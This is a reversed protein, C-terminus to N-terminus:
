SRQITFQSMKLTPEAPLIPLGDALLRPHGKGEADLEWCEVWQDWTIPRRSFFLEKADLTPGRSVLEGNRHLPTLLDYPERLDYAIMKGNLHDERIVLCHDTIDYGPVHPSLAATLQERILDVGALKYLGALASTLVQRPEADLQKLWGPEAISAILWGCHEEFALWLSQNPFTGHGLEVRIRNCSLVIQAVYIPPDPWSKSQKLLAIFEREIFLQLSRAVERLAQRYTRASRWNGDHYAALEAHRLYAFHTPVTGSHFGPKLLQPMKEGHRGIVVPKLRPARNARFLRWNEQIEWFFFAVASPLLWLTPIIVGYTLMSAIVPGTHPGLREIQAEPAFAERYLPILWMFKFALSSIPLKIPNLTPEMLTVFYLRILYGIPFWLVGAVARVVLTLRGEDSRFRLWEDVSYLLSEVAKTVQKFFLDVWRVVGQLFEFRVWGYVMAVSEVLAESAAYGFRSNLLVDVLIFTAVASTPGRTMPFCLWIAASVALPKIGYWFLLLFPWSSLISRLWPLRYLRVPIEYFVLRLCRYSWHGVQRFFERLGPVHMLLWLFVGLPLFTYWPLLLSHGATETARSLMAPHLMPVSPLVTAQRAVEEAAAPAQQFYHMVCIELTVVIAFAGGFPLVVHRTLFRGIDTGFFLSSGRELWRLYFEGRHYVGEMLTALRRDLWLLPDGRWYSVPDQLDPLKLRNRSVTDRLDAFTFFGYESIRDLLEEIMKQLAVQEPPNAAVLGVDHFADRLIPRFRERLREETLNSASQLLRGLRQRDDDSIRAMTLRQAATRLHQISRVLQLSTLPRKIPRRGASVVWEVLDLAFSKRQHEMCVEQLDYLLKAEVPWNGQDSKDLLSPLVQLWQQLEEGSFKLADQLNATLVGVDRVASDRTSRTLAAPAVRAAKTRLIAARVIDGEAVARDAHRQLRWYYDHSEDSSTDTQIVPDPAGPLRTRAFIADGDVDRALIQDIAAFDSIAPFYTARLNTRFYRLELYVAAFEIYVALDDAPELLDREEQLVARIEEFETRGIQEIRARVDAQTLNGEQHREDLALHVHVHFLLRWYRSLIAARDQKELAEDPRALLIVTSPLLHDPPLDLEDQEVYRFLVERDFYYCREHPVQVLLHPAKYEEQLIRRLVRPPVLLAAPDTARVAQKLDELEV